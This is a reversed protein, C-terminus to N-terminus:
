GDKLEKSIEKAKEMAKNFGTKFLNERIQRQLEEPTIGVDSAEDEMAVKQEDKGVLDSFQNSQQADIREVPKVSGVQGSTDTQPLEANQNTILSM